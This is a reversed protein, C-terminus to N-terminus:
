IFSDLPLSSEPEMLYEKYLWSLAEPDDSPVFQCRFSYPNKESKGTIDLQSSSPLVYRSKNGKRIDLRSLPHQVYGICACAKNQANKQTLIFFPSGIVRHERDAPPLWLPDGGDSEDPEVPLHHPLWVKNEESDALNFGLPFQISHVREEREGSVYCYCNLIPFTYSLLYRVTVVISPDDKPTGSLSVDHYDDTPTSRVMYYNQSFAVGKRGTAGLSYEIAKEDTKLIVSGSHHGTKMSWTMGAVKDIVHFRGSPILIRVQISQNDLRIESQEPKKDTMTKDALLLFLETNTPHVDTM